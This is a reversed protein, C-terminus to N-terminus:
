STYRTGTILRALRPGDGSVAHGPRYCPLRLDM